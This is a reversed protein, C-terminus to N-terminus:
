CLVVGEADTDSATCEGIIYAKEGAEALAAVTKDADQAAVALVMGIGMNYTNYMMQEEINGTKQLLRFIAPVEYSDKRVRARIGDPLMKMIIFNM